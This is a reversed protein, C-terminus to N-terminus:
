LQRRGSVRAGSELNGATTLEWCWIQNGGRIGCAHGGGRDSGFDMSVWNTATGFQQPLNTSNHTGELNGWCWLTGDSRTACTSFPGATVSRWDKAIGVKRPVVRRASASGDGLQGSDNKGWCFLAGDTRTACTHSGGASVTTWDAATGVQQPTLRRTRTGDGLEGDQNYGWCYLAGGARTACSHSGRASITAWDNATGVRRPALADVETGIGLQGGENAGWCMLIGAGRLGCSHSGSASLVTWDTHTGIRVPSTSGDRTSNGLLGSGWCWATGDTGLGCVRGSGVTVSQWLSPGGVVAVPRNTPSMTNNGLQGSTGDGWCWATGDSRVGCTTNGGTSVMSWASPAAVSAAASGSGIGGGSPVCLLAALLLLCVRSAFDPVTALPQM